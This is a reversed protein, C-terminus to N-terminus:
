RRDAGQYKERRWARLPRDRRRHAPRPGAPDVGAIAALDAAPWPGTRAALSGLLQRAVVLDHVQEAIPYLEVLLADLWQALPGDPEGAREQEARAVLGLLIVAADALPEGRRADEDAGM